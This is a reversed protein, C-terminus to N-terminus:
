QKVFISEFGQQLVAHDLRRGIFVFRTFRTSAPAAATSNANSNSSTSNTAPWEDGPQLDYLEKVAQLFTPKDEGELQMIAKVRFLSNSRLAAPTATTTPAPSAPTAAVAAAAAASSSSETADNKTEDTVKVIDRWLLDSMWLKLSALDVPRRQAPPTSTDDVMWTSISSDHPHAVTVAAASSSAAAAPSGDVPELDPMSCLARTTDRVDFAHIHLIQDMPVESRTSAYIAASQNIRRIERECEARESAGVLDLKNLVIRDAYAVQHIVQQAELSPSADAETAIGSASAATMSTESETKLHSMFNKADVVSVIGDLYVTSELEPDVWFTQALPGPDALGSCELVIYDFRKRKLLTEVGVIFDNKISCCVCGGGLELLDNFVTTDVDAATRLGAEVGFSSAENQIIALSQGLATFHALIRTLLTTKGPTSLLAFCLLTLITM